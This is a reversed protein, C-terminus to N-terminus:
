SGDALRLHVRTDNSLKRDYIPARFGSSDGAIPIPIESGRVDITAARLPADSHFYFAIRSSKCAGALSFAVRALAPVESKVGAWMVECQLRLDGLRRERATTGPSTILPSLRLAGHKRNSVLQYNGAPNVDAPITLIRTEPDIPLDIVDKGVLSLQLGALDAGQDIPVVIFSFSAAPAYQRRHRRNAEVMARLQRATLRFPNRLGTVVIDGDGSQAPEAQAVAAPGAHVPSAAIMAFPVALGNISRRLV